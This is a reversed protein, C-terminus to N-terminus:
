PVQRVFRVVVGAAEDAVFTAAAATKLWQPVCDWEVGSRRCSLQAFTAATPGSHCSTLYTNLNTQDSAQIKSERPRILVVPPGYSLVAPLHGQDRIQVYQAATLSASERTRCVGISRDCSLEDTAAIDFQSIVGSAFAALQTRCSSQLRVRAGEAIYEADGSAALSALALLLASM